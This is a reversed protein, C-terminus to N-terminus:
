NEIKSITTGTNFSAQSILCYSISIIILMFVSIIITYKQFKRSIIIKDKLIIPENFEQLAPLSVGLYKAYLKLYGKVYIESPIIEWKNEELAAIYQKKINLRNAIEEITYGAEIRAQKLNNSIAGDIRLTIKPILSLSM